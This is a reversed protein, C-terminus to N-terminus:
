ACMVYTCDGCCVASWTIKGRHCFWRM